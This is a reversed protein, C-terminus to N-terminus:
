PAAAAATSLACLTSGALVLALGAAGAPLAIHDGLAHDALANAALSV